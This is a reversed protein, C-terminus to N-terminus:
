IKGAFFTVICSKWNRKNCCPFHMITSSKLALCISQPELNTVAYSRTILFIVPTESLLVLPGITNEICVISSKEDCSLSIWSRWSLNSQPHYSERVFCFRDLSTVFAGIILDGIKEFKRFFLVQSTRCYDVIYTSLSHQDMQLLCIEFSMFECQLVIFIFNTSITTSESTFTIIINKIIKWSASIRM